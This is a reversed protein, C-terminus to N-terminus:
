NKEKRKQAASQAKLFRAYTILKDAEEGRAVELVMQLDKNNTLELSLERLEENLSGPSSSPTNKDGHIFYDVDVGFYDAIITLKDLKPTSLGKKWASFISQAIHTDKAVRYTTVGRSKLLVEFNQYM